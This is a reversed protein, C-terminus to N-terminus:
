VPGLRWSLIPCLVWRLGPPTSAARVAKSNLVLQGWVNSTRLCLEWLTGAIKPQCPSWPGGAWCVWYLTPDKDVNESNRVPSWVKLKWVCLATQVLQEWGCPMPFKKLADGGLWVCGSSISDGAGVAGLQCCWSAAGAWGTCRVPVSSPPAGMLAQCGSGM